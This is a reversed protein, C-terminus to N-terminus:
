DLGKCNGLHRVIDFPHLLAQSVLLCTASRQEASHAPLMNLLIANISRSSLISIITM